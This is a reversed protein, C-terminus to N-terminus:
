RKRLIVRLSPPKLIEIRSELEAWLVSVSGAPFYSVLEILGKYDQRDFQTVEFDIPVEIAILGGIKTVRHMQGLSKFPDYSHEMSHIAFSIDFYNDDFPLDHMDAVIIRRTSTFLDVGIIERAHILSEITSLEREDRCGISVAKDCKVGWNRAIKVTQQILRDRSGIYRRFRNVYTSRPLSRAIQEEIYQRYDERMNTSDIKEGGNITSFYNADSIEALAKKSFVRLFFISTIKGIVARLGFNKVYNIASM